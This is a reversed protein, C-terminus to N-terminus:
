FLMELPTLLSYVVKPKRFAANTPDWMVTWLLADPSVLSAASSNLQCHLGQAMEGWAASFLELM